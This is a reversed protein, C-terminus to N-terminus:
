SAPAPLFRALHNAVQAYQQAILGEPQMVVLPTHRLVAQYALEPAPSIVLDITAALQEQIESRSLQLDTRQRNVLVLTVQKAKGFDMPSLDQLLSKTHAITIPNPDVVMLAQNCKELVKNIGPFFNNGIDILILAHTYALQQIVREIQPVAKTLSTDKIQHSALLLRVGSRHFILENKVADATIADPQMQLLNALGDLKEYGLEYGWHGCGPHLEIVVAAANTKQHLTIATNLALTSVGLGGRAGIVACIYARPAPPEVLPSTGTVGKSRRLLARVQGALEKPHTPKTLYGDVGVEYATVKDEIQSKATFMLIPLRATEENSRIRRAVEYGDMDPMMIDLLVLDPQEEKVLQIGQAGNPATVVAYEMRQLMMSVLRLTELDDDIILIKEAM